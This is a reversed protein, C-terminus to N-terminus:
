LYGAEKCQTIARALLESLNLKAAWDRLYEQDIREGQVKLVGLIDSWQRESVQNGLRYWGLKALIIDEPTPIKIKTETFPLAVEQARKLQHDRYEDIKTFFDIKLATKEHFINFSRHEKVAAMVSRKDVLFDKEAHECFVNVNDIGIRIVVDLDNTARYLGHIGSAFAGGVFYDLQLQGLLNAVSEIANLPAIENIDM